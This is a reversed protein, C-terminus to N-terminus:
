RAIFTQFLFGVLAGVLGLGGLVSLVIQWIPTSPKSDEIDSENNLQEDIEPVYVKRLSYMEKTEGESADYSPVYFTGEDLQLIPGHIREYTKGGNPIAISAEGEIETFTDPDRWELKGKQGNLALVKNDETVFLNGWGSIFDTKIPTNATTIKGAEYQLSQAYSHDHHSNKNVRVITKGNAHAASTGLSVENTGSNELIKALPKEQGEPNISVMLGYLKETGKIGQGDANLVFTGDDMPLLESPENSTNYLRGYINESSKDEFGAEKLLDTSDPLPQTNIKGKKIIGLQNLTVVAVTHTAPHYGISTIAKDFTHVKVPEGFGSHVDVHVKYLTNKDDMYLKGDLKKGVYYFDNNKEDFAVAGYENIKIPSFYKQKLNRNLLALGAGEYQKFRYGATSVLVHNGVKFLNRHHEYPVQNNFEQTSVRYKTNDFSPRKLQPHKSADFTFTIPALASGVSYFESFMKNGHETLVTPIGSWTVTKETKTFEASATILEALPSENGNNTYTSSKRYQKSSVTAYVYSGEKAIVIRPNEIKLDLECTAKEYDSQTATGANLGCYKQYRLGGKFKAEFKETESDYSTSELPFTFENKNENQSAGDFVSTPGGTYNNFSTRIGWTLSGTNVIGEALEAVSEKAKTAAPKNNSSPSPAADPKTVKNTDEKDNSSDPATSEKSDDSTSDVDSEATESTSTSDEATNPATVASSPTSEEAAAQIGTVPLLAALTTTAILSRYFYKNKM